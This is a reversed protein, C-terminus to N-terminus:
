KSGSAGSSPTSRRSASSCATAPARTPSAPAAKAPPSRGARRMTPPLRDHRDSYRRPQGSGVARFWARHHQRRQRTRRGGDPLQHVAGRLRRQRHRDPLADSRIQNRHIRLREPRTAVPHRRGAPPRETARTAILDPLSRVTQNEPVVTRNTRRGPQGGAQRPHALQMREGACREDVPRGAAAPRWGRATNANESFM